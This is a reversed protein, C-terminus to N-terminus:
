SIFRISFLKYFDNLDFMESDKSITKFEKFMKEFIICAIGLYKNRNDRSAAPIKIKLMLQQFASDEPDQFFYMSANGSLSVIDNIKRLFDLILSPIVDTNLIYEAVKKDVAVMEKIKAIKYFSSCEKHPENSFAILLGSYDAFSRLPHVSTATYISTDNTVLFPSGWASAIVMSNDFLSVNTNSQLITQLM